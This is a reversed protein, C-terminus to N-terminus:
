FGIKLTEIEPQSFCPHLVSSVLRLDLIKGVQLCLFTPESVINESIRARLFGRQSGTPPKPDLTKDDISAYRDVATNVANPTGVVRGNSAVAAVATDAIMADAVAFGLRPLGKSIEL